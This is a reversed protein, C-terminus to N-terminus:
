HRHDRVRVWSGGGHRGNDHHHKDGKRRGKWRHDHHHGEVVVGPLGIGIELVPVGVEIDAELVPREVHVVPTHVEVTPTHVEVVPGLYGLPAEVEVVPRAYVIPQYYANIAAYHKRGRTYDAPFAGIYWYADGHMTFTAGAPPAYAHYHPGDIYCYEPDDDDVEGLMVDVDVPHHGYYATRPGDYDFPAPDGIFVYEGDHVRYLIDAKTPTYIHVHPAEIYCTGGGVQKPIPHIGAYRVQKASAAHAGALSVFLAALLAITLRSHM